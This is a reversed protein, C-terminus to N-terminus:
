FTLIKERIGNEGDFLNKKRLVPEKLDKKLFFAQGFFSKIGGV